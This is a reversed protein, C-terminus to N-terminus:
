ITFNSKLQIKGILDLFKESTMSWLFKRHVREYGQEGLKKAFNKDTLIKIIADAIAGVDKPPVLIGNVGDEVADPVGGSNGGIVPKKCANAELYTIGFGEIDTGIERSPMAFVDAINYMKPVDDDPVFGLFIIRAGIDLDDAIKRLKQEYKGRGAVLYVFNDFREIVAPLSKIVNDLGEREVLRGLSLLIKKDQPIKYKEFFKREVKMPKFIDTDVGCHIIPIERSYKHERRVIQAVNKAGSVVFSAGNLTKRMMWENFKRREFADLGHVMIIYPIKGKKSHLSNHWWLPIAMKWNACIAVPNREERVIKRLYRYIRFYKRSKWNEDPLRRVRFPHQADDYNKGSWERTIIEVSNDLKQLNLALRYVWTTIGGEIPFFDQTIIKIEATM